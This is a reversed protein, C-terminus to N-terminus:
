KPSPLTDESISCRAKVEPNLQLIYPLNRLLTIVEPASLRFTSQYFEETSLKMWCENLGSNNDLQNLDMPFLLYHM